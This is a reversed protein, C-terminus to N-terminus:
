TTTEGIVASSQASYLSKPKPGVDVVVEVDLLVLVVEDVDFLEELGFSTM